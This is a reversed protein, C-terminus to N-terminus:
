KVQITMNAQKGPQLVWQGNEKRNEVEARVAYREDGGIESGVFVIKGPFQATRGGALTVQVNVNRDALDAPNYTTARARGEVSLRDIKIIRLVPDGPKVWEGL